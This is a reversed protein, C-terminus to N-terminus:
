ETSVLEGNDWIGRLNRGDPLSAYGPGHQQDARFGGRYITGDPWFMRGEGEAQWKVFPGDYYVGSPWRKIGEVPEDNAWQGDIEIGGRSKFVGRGARQGKQWEGSYSDGRNPYVAKGTGHKEWGQWQGVYVIAPSSFTGEGRPKGMDWEGDYSWDDRSFKGRGHPRGLHFAGVYRMGDSDAQGQGEALGDKCGGAYRTNTSVCPLAEYDYPLVIPAAAGTPKLNVDAASPAGQTFVRYAFLIGGCITLLLALRWVRRRDVPESPPTGSVQPEALLMRWGAFDPRTAPQPWLARDITSLLQRSYRASALVQAPKQTDMAQREDAPLPPIGTVVRYAVAGLRYVEDRGAASAPDAAPIYAARYHRAATLGFCAESFSPDIWPQAGIQPLLLNDPHIGIPIAAAQLAQAGAMVTHLMARVWREEPQPQRQLEQELTVAALPTILYASGGSQQFDLVAVVAPHQLAALRQAQQVFQELGAQYLTGAGHTPQLSGDAARTAMAVPYYEKIAVPRGLNPLEAQYVLTAFGSGLLRQIRYDGILTGAALPSRDALGVAIM